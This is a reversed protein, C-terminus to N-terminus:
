FLEVINTLIQKLEPATRVEILDKNYAKISNMMLTYLRPRQSACMCEELALRIDYINAFTRQIEVEVNGQSEKFSKNLKELKLVRDKLIYKCFLM